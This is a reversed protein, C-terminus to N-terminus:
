ASKPLDTATVSAGKGLAKEIRAFRDLMEEHMRDTKEHLHAVELEAKINIEYEIDARVRDKAGQMNQSILVLCSLFIAELSVLMTLFSYPYADFIAIKFSNLGIWLGFFIAHIVIFKIEGAFQAVKDAVRDVISRSEAVEENVNRAVRERLLANAKRTMGGMTALMDLAAEPKKKFLLLLDDRDLTVLESPEIACASATRSGGDLLSLEGFFDGPKATHLVIKQGSHDKVFLEIAGKQLIFMSDGPEGAGFLAEGPKVTRNHVVNALVAREDEDLQAFLKIQALFTPDTPM